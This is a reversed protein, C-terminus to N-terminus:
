SNAADKRIEDLHEIVYDVSDSILATLMEPINSWSSAPGTFGGDTFSWGRLDREALRARTNLILWAYQSNAADIAVEPTEDEAWTEQMAKITWEPDTITMQM